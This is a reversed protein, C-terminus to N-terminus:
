KEDTKETEDDTFLIKFFDALDNAFFTLNEPPMEKNFDEKLIIGLENILKKSLM